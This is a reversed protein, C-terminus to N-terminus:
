VFHQLSSPQPVYTCLRRTPAPNSALPASHLQALFVQTPRLCTSLQPEKHMTIVKTVYQRAPPKAIDQTTAASMLNPTTEADGEVPGRM